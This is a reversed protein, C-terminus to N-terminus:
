AAPTWAAAAGDKGGVVPTVLAAVLPFREAQDTRCWAVLLDAATADIPNDGFRTAEHVLKLM